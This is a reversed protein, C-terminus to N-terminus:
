APAFEGAMRLLLGPPHRQVACHSLRRLLPPLDPVYLTLRKVELERFGYTFGYTFVFFAVVSLCAGLLKGWNHHGHRLRMVCWGMGSFLAFVFPPVAFLAMMGFWIDVLLPNEPIFNPLWALYASYGIVCLAPLWLLVRKWWLRSRFYHRDIWLYPVVVGIVIPILIRTIM